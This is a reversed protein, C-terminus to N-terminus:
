NPQAIVGINVPLQSNGNTSNAISAASVHPNYPVNGPKYPTASGYLGADTGDNAWGIGPSGSAMHLDDSFQYTADTENVFISAANVNFQNNQSTGTSNSFLTSGTFICNSVVSSNSQYVAASSYVSISNKFQAGGSNRFAQVGLFVCHDVVLPSFSNIASSTDTQYDFICRNFTGGKNAGYIHINFVCENFTTPGTGVNDRGLNPNSLFRCRTFIVGSPDDDATTLGYYMQGAPTSFTMGTFTSGSAATTIVINGAATTLQTVGTVATSDPHIGAGIFHLPKDIVLQAASVHTGGSLYVKDNPQAATLAANITSFVQPTGAGQVVIRPPQAKAAGAFLCMGLLLLSIRNKM